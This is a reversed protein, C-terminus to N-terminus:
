SSSILLDTLRKIGEEGGAVWILLGTGIMSNIFWNRASGVSSHTSSKDETIGNKVSASSVQDHLLPSKVTTTSTSAFPSNAFPLESSGADFANVTDIGLLQRRMGRNNAKQEFAKVWVKNVDEPIDEKEAKSEFAVEDKMHMIVAASPDHRHASVTTTSAKKPVSGLRIKKSAPQRLHSHNVKLEFAQVWNAADLEDKVSASNDAIASSDIAKKESREAPVSSVSEQFEQEIADLPTAKTGPENKQYSHHKAIAEEVRHDLSNESPWSTSNKRFQLLRQVLDQKTGATSMHHERVLNELENKRLRMLGSKTWQEPGMANKLQSATAKVLTRQQQEMALLRCPAALFRNSLTKFM